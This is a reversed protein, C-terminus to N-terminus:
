SVNRLRGHMVNSRSVSQLNQQINVFVKALGTSQGRLSGLQDRTQLLLSTLYHILSQNYLLRCQTKGCLVSYQHRARFPM